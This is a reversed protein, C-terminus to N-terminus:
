GVKQEMGISCRVTLLRAGLQLGPFQSDSTMAVLHQSRVTIVGDM